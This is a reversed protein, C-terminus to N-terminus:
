TMGYRVCPRIEDRELDGVGKRPRKWLCRAKGRAVRSKWFAEAYNSRSTDSALKRGRRKALREVHRYLEAGVGFRRYPADVHSWEITYYDTAKPGIKRCRGSQRASERVGQPQICHGSWCDWFSSCNPDFRFVNEAPGASVRGIRIEDRTGPRRHWAEVTVGEERDPFTHHVWIRFPFRAALGVLGLGIFSRLM